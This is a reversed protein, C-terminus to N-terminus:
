RSEKFARFTWSTVTVPSSGPSSMWNRDKSCATSTIASLWPRAVIGTSSDTRSRRSGAFSVRTLRLLTSTETLARVATKWLSARRVAPNCFWSSVVHSPRVNM